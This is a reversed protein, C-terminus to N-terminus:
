ASSPMRSLLGDRPSPSTYLLCGTVKGGHRKVLEQAETRGWKQLVGTFVFTLGALCTDSGQPMDGSSGGAPAVDGRGANAQWNFKANEDKPPPTPARVTPISDYIAQIDASDELEEKKAKKKAPSKAPAAKKPAKKKPKEDEEEGEEEEDPIPSKRKKGATSTKKPKSKLAQEDEDPQIFDDEADIDKMDVDEDEPDFDDEDKITKQQKAPAKPTGRHPLQVPMDDGSEPEEKYDDKGKGKINDQFIDDADDLDDDPFEDEDDREAYSTVPKKTRGSKKTTSAPTTTKSAKGNAKAPAKKPTTAPEDM